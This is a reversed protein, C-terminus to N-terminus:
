TLWLNNKMFLPQLNDFCIKWVFIKFTTILCDFEFTNEKFPSPFNKYKNVISTFFDKLVDFIFKWKNWKFFIGLIKYIDFNSKYFLKTNLQSIHLRQCRKDCHWITIPQCLCNSQRWLSWNM